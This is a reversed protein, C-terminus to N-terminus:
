PQVELTFSITQSRPEIEMSYAGVAQEIDETPRNAYPNYTYVPWKLSMPSETRLTWGNHRIWEGIDTSALDIQETGLTIRKGAATELTEGNKLVLQLTLRTPRMTGKRNIGFQLRVQDDSPPPVDLLCFFKNHALALRDGEPKMDLRSSMPLHSIGDDMEEAFTALEPQRKSNAGSIIMGLKEHYISIASQRDLYFRSFTPTSILGSLCVVWPGTKRIGAPVTMQHVYNDKDQPIPAQPGEHYYLADQAMRGLAELTIRGGAYNNVLFEAYRRGDPFNSFGFHGWMSVGWYRNRDNITEVPIGDPYTYYKHFDTSRRLAKLAAPDRTHEWYLAVAASTLYDYGTTPMAHTHEGWFGDPSQEETAFRDMVYAGLDKWNKRDFVVGGLHLTSSWLSYHNPSTILYPSNYQPHDKRKEVEPALAAVHEMLESSWRFRRDDDLHDRLLRFSELWMYTDRHHDLREYSGTEAARLLIEGIKVAANLTAEDGHRPNDPHDKAYLVAAVLLISPFHRWGPRSELARLGAQPNSELHEMVRDLGTDMHEFYTRPLESALANACALFCVLLFRLTRMSAARLPCPM